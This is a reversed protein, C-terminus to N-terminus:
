RIKEFDVHYEQPVVNDLQIDFLLTKYISQTKQEIFSSEKMNTLKGTGFYNFPFTILWYEKNISKLRVCLYNDVITNLEGYFIFSSIFNDKYDNIEQKTKDKKCM